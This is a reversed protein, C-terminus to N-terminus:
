ILKAYVIMMVLRHTSLLFWTALDFTLIVTRMQVKHMYQLLGHEHGVCLKHHSAKTKITKDSSGLCFWPRPNTSRLSTLAGLLKIAPRGLAAKRNQSKLTKLHPTGYNLTIRTIYLYLFLYFHTNITPSAPSSRYPFYSNVQSDSTIDKIADKQATRKRVLHRSHSRPSLQTLKQPDEKRRKDHLTPNPILKARITIM